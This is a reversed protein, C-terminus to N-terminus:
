LYIEPGLRPYSYIARDLVDMIFNAGSLNAATGNYLEGFPKGVFPEDWTQQNSIDRMM